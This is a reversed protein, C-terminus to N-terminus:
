LVANLPISPEVMINSKFCCQVRIICNVEPNQKVAGDKSLYRHSGLPLFRHMFQGM